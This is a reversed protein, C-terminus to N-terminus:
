IIRNLNPIYEMDRENLIVKEWEGFQRCLNLTRKDPDILQAIREHTVSGFSLKNRKFFCLDEVQMIQEPFLSEFNEIILKEMHESTQLLLIELPKEYVNYCFWSYTKVNIHRLDHWILRRDTKIENSIKDNQNYPLSLSFYDNQKMEYKIFKIFNEGVINRNKLLYSVLELM